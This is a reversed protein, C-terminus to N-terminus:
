GTAEGVLNSAKSGTLQIYMYIYVIDELQVSHDLGNVIFLQGLSPNKKRTLTRLVLCLGVSILTSSLQDLQECYEGDLNM